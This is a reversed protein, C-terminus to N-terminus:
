RATFEAVVEAALLPHDTILADVGAALSREMDARDNVTWEHVQLGAAHVARVFRGTVVPIGAQARPVQFCDLAPHLGRACGLAVVRATEATGASTPVDPLARRLRKLRASSFSALRIRDAAGSRRVTRVMAAVSRDAKVDINFSTDPLDELADELRPILGGDALDVRDLDRASLDGIAADIGALRDLREDHFAYLVGDRSAHVDTEIWTIGAAVAARFAPLTNEACGPWLGGRHAIVFPTPPSSDM